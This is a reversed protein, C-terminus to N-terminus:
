SDYVNEMRSTAFLAYSSAASRCLVVFAVNRAYVTGRPRLKIVTIAFSAYAAATATLLLTLPGAALLGHRAAPGQLPHQAGALSADHLPGTLYNHIYWCM